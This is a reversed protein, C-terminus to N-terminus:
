SSSTTTRGSRVRIVDRQTGFSPCCRWDSWKALIPVPVICDPPVGCLGSVGLTMEPWRQHILHEVSDALLSTFYQPCTARVDFHLERGRLDLLASGHRGHELYMGRQWHRRPETAFRQSRVIMWPVIGTPTESM